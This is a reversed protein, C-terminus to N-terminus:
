RGAEDRCSVAGHRRCTPAQDTNRRPIGWNQGHTVKGVEYLNDPQPQFAFGSLAPKQIYVKEPHDDNQHSERITMGM